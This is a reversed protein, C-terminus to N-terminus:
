VTAARSGFEIFWRATWGPLEHDLPAPIALGLPSLFDRWMAGAHGSSILAGPCNANTELVQFSGAADLHLDLRCLHIHGNAANYDLELDRRVSTPASLMRRVADDTSWARVITEVANHYAKGFRALKRGYEAKILMPQGVSCPNGRIHHLQEAVHNGFQVTTTSSLEARTTELFTEDLGPWSRVGAGVHVPTM